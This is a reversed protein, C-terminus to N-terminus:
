DNQTFDVETFGNVEHALSKIWVDALCFLGNKARETERKREWKECENNNVMMMQEFFNIDNCILKYIVGYVSDETAEMNM